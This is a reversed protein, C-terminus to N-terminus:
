EFRLTLFENLNHYPNGPISLGPKLPTYKKQVEALGHQNHQYVIERILDQKKKMKWTSNIDNEIKTVIDDSADVQSYQPCDSVQDLKTRYTSKRMLCFGNGKDVPVTLLDHRKHYKTVKSLGREM